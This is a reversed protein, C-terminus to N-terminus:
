NLVVTITYGPAHVGVIADAAVVTLTAGLNWTDDANQQTIATLDGEDAAGNVSVAWASLNVGAVDDADVFSANVSAGPISTCTFIGPIYGTDDFTATLIPDRVREVALSITNPALCVGVLLGVVPRWWARFGALPRM